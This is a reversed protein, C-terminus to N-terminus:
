EVVTELLTLKMQTTSLECLAGIPFLPNELHSPHGFTPCYIVPFTYGDIKECVMDFPDRSKYDSPEDGYFSGIVMGMLKSFVGANRLCTLFQDVIQIRETASEWFLIGPHFDPMFKTGLCGLVFTSLNGGFLRGKGEGARIIRYPVNEIAGLVNERTSGFASTVLALDAHKTEFLKGVVNPGHFTILGTQATIANLLVCVDSFGMIPKKATRILEYDLHELLQNASKGGWSAMLARVEQERLLEHIDDVRERVSGAAYTRQALANSALKVNFDYGELVSMGKRLRALRSETIPESPSFVGIREGPRLRRPKIMKDISHNFM